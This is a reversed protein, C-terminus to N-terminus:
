AKLKIKPHCILPKCALDMLNNSANISSKSSKCCDWYVM